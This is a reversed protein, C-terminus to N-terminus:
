RLQENDPHLGYDDIIDWDNGTGQILASGDEFIWATKENEFDQDRQVAMSELNSQELTMNDHENLEFVERAKSM